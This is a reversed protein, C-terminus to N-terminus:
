NTYSVINMEGWNMNIAPLCLNNCQLDHLIESPAVYKELLWQTNFKTCAAFDHRRAFQLLGVRGDRCGNTHIRLTDERNM